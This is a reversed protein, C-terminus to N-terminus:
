ITLAEIFGRSVLEGDQCSYRYTKFEYDNSLNVFKPRELNKPFIKRPAITFKRKELVINLSASTGKKISVFNM